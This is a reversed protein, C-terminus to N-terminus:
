REEFRIYLLFHLDDAVLGLALGIDFRVPEIQGIRLQEIPIRGEHDRAMGSSGAARAEPRDAPQTALKHRDNKEGSPVSAIETILM